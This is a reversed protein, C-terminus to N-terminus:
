YPVVGQLNANVQQYGSLSAVYWLGVLRSTPTPIRQKMDTKKHICQIGTM